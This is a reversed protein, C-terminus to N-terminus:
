RWSNDIYPSDEVGNVNLHTVLPDLICKWMAQFWRTKGLHKVLSPSIAYYIRIFARGYWTSALTYDRFRRLSWVQPCDYSGYVATAIYCGESSQQSSKKGSKYKNNNREIIEATSLSWRRSAPRGNKSSGDNYGEEYGDDWCDDYM